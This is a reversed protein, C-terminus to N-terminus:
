PYPFSINFNEMIFDRFNIILSSADNNEDGYYMINNLIIPISISVLCMYLKRSILLVSLGLGFEICGFVSFAFYNEPTLYPWGGAESNFNYGIYEEPFKITNILVLLFLGGNIIMATRFAIRNATRYWSSCTKEM